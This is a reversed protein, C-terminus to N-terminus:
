FCLRCIPFSSGIGLALSILQTFSFRQAYRVHVARYCGFPLFKNIAAPVAPDGLAAAADGVTAEGPFSADVRIHLRRQFSATHIRERAIKVTLLTMQEQFPAFHRLDPIM